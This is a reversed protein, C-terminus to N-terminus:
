PAELWAATANALEVLGKQFFHDVEPLGVIKVHDEGELAARVKDLPALSDEEGTVILTKKGTAAIVSPDILAPPPAILILRKVRPHQGAARVAAASGFSYGCATLKGPVTDALHALASGYDADADVEEGSPEGSSAGVGRWNFRVTDMGAKFCAYAVENVVPSEMSGGYLPHPPAVVAGTPAEPGAAVYIAELSQDAADSRGVAIMKEVWKM